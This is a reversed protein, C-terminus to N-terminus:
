DDTLCITLWLHPLLYLEALNQKDYPIYCTSEKSLAVYVEHDVQVTNYVLLM